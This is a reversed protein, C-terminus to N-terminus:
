IVKHWIMSILMSSILPVFVYMVCILKETKKGNISKYREYIRDYKMRTIFFVYHIYFFLVCILAIEIISVSPFNKNLVYFYFIEFIVGVWGLSGALMLALADFWPTKNKKNKGDLYQTNYICYFIYNM